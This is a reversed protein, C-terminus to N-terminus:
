EQNIHGGIGISRLAHLRRESGQKGRAYHFVQQGHRLVVYPVIQKFSPDDEALSRPMYSLHASDLLRQLYHEVRPSFGQFLGAEHLVATPTVLVKEDLKSM